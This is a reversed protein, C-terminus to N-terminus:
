KVIGSFRQYLPTSSKENKPMYRGSIFPIYIVRRRSAEGILSSKAVRHWLRGNHVTLDGASPLIPLEEPDPKHDIFYTKRFLLSQLSQIHSGPIIRLGGNEVSANNLHVGVNLMPMIKKGYFVDRLSDTHWGMQTFKSEPTNIYHNIVMGDKENEGIRGGEGLLPLLADFRKDKLFDHLYPHYLSAFAFRQVIKEGNLDVGYKIPVGYVKQINNEIWKKQVEESARIIEDVTEKTIFNTFHLFGNKEFFSVQEDTLKDTLEFKPYNTKTM